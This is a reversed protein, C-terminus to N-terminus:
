HCVRPLAAPRLLAARARRRRCKTDARRASQMCRHAPNRARRHGRLFRVNLRADHGVARALLWHHWSMHRRSGWHQMRRCRLQCRSYLRGDGTAHPADAPKATHHAPQLRIPCPLTLPAGAPQAPLHAPQARQLPALVDQHRRAARLGARVGAGGLVAGDARAGGGAAGSTLARVRYARSLGAVASGPARMCWTSPPLPASCTRESPLRTECCLRHARARGPHM